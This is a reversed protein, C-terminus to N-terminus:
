RQPYIVSVDGKVLFQEGDAFTGKAVFIYVDMPVLKGKYYGDWGQNINNTRFVINGSRDFITLNYEAIEKKVVVPYFIDNRSTSTTYYGGTPGTLNPIFANPFIIPEEKDKVSVFAQCTDQCNKENQALLTIQYTGTNLYTHQPNEEGSYTNDGFDWRYVTANASLNVIKLPKKVEIVSDAKFKAEPKPYVTIKVSDKIHGIKACVTYEGAEKLVTDFEGEKYGLATGNIQLFVKEYNSKIRIALPQCGELPEVTIELKEEDSDKEFEEPADEQLDSKSFKRIDYFDSYGVFTDKFIKPLSLKIEIEKQTDVKGLSAKISDHLLEMKKSPKIVPIEESIEKQEPQNHPVLLAFAALIVAVAGIFGLVNLLSKIALKREINEWVNPEPEVRYDKFKQKFFDDINMAM